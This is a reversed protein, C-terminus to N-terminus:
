RATLVTHFLSFIRYLKEAGFPHKLKTSSPMNSSSEKKRDSRELGSVISSRKHGEQEQHV